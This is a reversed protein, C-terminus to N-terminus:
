ACKTCPTWKNRNLENQMPIFVSLIFTYPVPLSLLKSQLKSRKTKHEAPWHSSVWIFPSDPCYWQGLFGLVAGDELVRFPFAAPGMSRGLITFVHWMLCLGHSAPAVEQLTGPACPRESPLDGAAWVTPLQDVQDTVWQGAAGPPYYRLLLTNTQLHKHCLANPLLSPLPFPLFPLAIFTLKGLRMNLMHSRVTLLMIIYPSITVICTSCSPELSDHM